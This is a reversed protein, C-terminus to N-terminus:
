FTTSKGDTEFTMESEDVTFEADSGSVAGFTVEKAGAAKTAETIISLVKAPDAQAPTVPMAVAVLVALSVAALGSTRISNKMQAM